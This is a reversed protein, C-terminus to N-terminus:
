QELCGHHGSSQLNQKERCVMRRIKLDMPVPEGDSMGQRDLLPIVLDPGNLKKETPVMELALMPLKLISEPNDEPM